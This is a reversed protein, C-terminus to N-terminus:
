RQVERTKQSTTLLRSKATEPTEADDDSHDLISEHSILSLFERTRSEKPSELVKSPSGQEVILGHDMFIVRDAVKRAFDMEHTVVLMTMGEEALQRMVSLVENVLEPDLSSTAEDFLMIRPQMALARAIAVRQQQGGSLRAPYTDRKDAVGVKELYELATREAERKPRGKVIVLPEAVNRLATMHPWLNFQQFVMGVKSQVRRLERGGVPVLKGNVARRGLLEGEIYVQGRFHDELFAVCRLLTSKGSGSPGIICLVDGREVEFSIGRLVELPGFDLALNEISLATAM